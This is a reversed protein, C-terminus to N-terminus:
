IVNELLGSLIKLAVPIVEDPFEYNETHLPPHTEGTGIGFFAGPIERLYYGFDESWRFAEQLQITDLGAKAAVHTLKEVCVPYNETAPFREIERIHCDLGFERALDLAIEKVASVLEEFEDEYSGRLTLRLTGSSASVGYADSGIEAGIVTALTMGRRKIKTLASVHRILDAILHAPNRGHEPYAAHAPTGSLTIELGTSACAFADPKVLISGSPFGPINHFGYIERIGKEKLLPVCLLAGQGTEEAPQFILYVSRPCNALLKGFGALTAAHGDHGCFHGAQGDKGLVADYDARFAIPASQDSGAHYAYFWAGCDHVELHDVLALFDQLVKRTQDEQLAIEPILHLAKRLEVTEDLIRREM